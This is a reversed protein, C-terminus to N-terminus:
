LHWPERMARSLMRDAEPDNVFREAVPDWKVKRGLRMAINGLHCVAASRHGVEVPAAPDKRTRVCRLFDGMHDGDAEYLHVEGPGIRSKLVSPPDAGGAIDIWGETGEFRPEGWDMTMRFQVGGAYTATFDAKTATDFLGSTPYEARGEIQLPGTGDAGIAWQAVDAWHAGNNTVQGGSYDGLFRFSYHCRQPHYPAWPAPGLWLDYDLEPPVPEPQWTPACQRSNAGVGATVRLLRGIRGNRVLECVHRVKAWSRRQTGTQFVRGYRRVAQIMARGEAITLTMPKECYIDKGARAAAIAIPAHWHDPVAIVVADVDARDLVERFDCEGDCGEFPGTGRRDGYARAVTELGRERVKADVDCVAVVQVDPNGVLGQLHGGGMNNVGICAVHIRDGPARAGAAGLASASVLAPGALAAAAAGALFGRRTVGRLPRM